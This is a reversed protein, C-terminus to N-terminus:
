GKAGGTFSWAALRLSPVHGAARLQGDNGVGKIRGPALAAAYSQTFRLNRVARTVEGGEILYLGNRTLGTVVQTKPDLIRTYWFDTVLLGREVAGILEARAKDGQGVFLSSPVPGLAESGSAHGTSTSGMAAATRRDLVIGSTVGGRVLEVRQRPTGEHDYGLGTARPDTADDWVDLAADFQQEGLHVFSTGESVPKGSFGYYGLFQFMDAVCGPELVVEYTGPEVDIAEDAARAKAAAVLGERAGDLDGVRVSRASASGDARGTRHIGDLVALTTRGTARHGTSSLLAHDAGATSCFGAAELGEGAGVFDGVIAARQNPDARRTAIDHHDIEPVECPATLGPWDPDPPRLAAAEVATEAARRLGERSVDRTSISAAAGAVVAKVTLAISDEAVNQHIRSNAFRTLASHGRAATVVADARDGIASLAQECLSLLDTM